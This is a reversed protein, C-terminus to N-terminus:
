AIKLHHTLARTFSPLQYKLIEEDKALAVPDPGHTVGVEVGLQFTYLTPVRWTGKQEMLTAGEEDLMTGHEISDVGRVAAKIGETGQAHAMVPRRTRHAVEVAKALQAESLEQVHNDSLVDGVRDSAMLKIWDAGYKLDRRVVMAIQGVTDASNPQPRL